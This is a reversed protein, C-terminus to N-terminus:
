ICAMQFSLHPQWTRCQRTTMIKQARFAGRSIPSSPYIKVICHYFKGKKRKKKLDEANYVSPGINLFFDAFRTPLETKFGEQIAKEMVLSGRLSQRSSTLRSPKPPKLPKMPSIAGANEMPMTLLHNYKCRIWIERVQQSSDPQPKEIGNYNHELIKNQVANSGAQAMVNIDDERWSASMAAILADANVHRVHVKACDLCIWVGYQIQAYANTGDGLARSCDACKRNGVLRLLRVIRYLSHSMDSSESTSMELLTKRAKKVIDLRDECSM